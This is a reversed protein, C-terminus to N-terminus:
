VLSNQIGHADLWKKDYRHMFREYNYLAQKQEELAEDGVNVLLIEGEYVTGDSCLGNWDIRDKVADPNDKDTLDIQEAELGLPCSCCFCRGEEKGNYIDTEEQKPHDCGYGNAKEINFYQCMAAFEDFSVAKRM